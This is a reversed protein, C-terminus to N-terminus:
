IGRVGDVSVQFVEHHALMWWNQPSVYPRLIGINWVSVCVSVCVDTSHTDASSDNPTNCYTATHWQNTATHQLTAHQLSNCHTAPWSAVGLDIGSLGLLMQAESMRMRVCVHTCLYAIMYLSLFLSLSLSLSLCRCCSRWSEITLAARRYWTFSCLGACGCTRICVGTCIAHMCKCMCVCIFNHDSDDCKPQTHAFFLCQTRTHTRTHTHTNHAHPISLSLSLSLSLFAPHSLFLSMCACLCIYVCTCMCVRMCPCIRLWVIVRICAYIHICVHVYMCVYMCVYVRVHMCTYMRVCICVCVVTEEDANDHLARTATQLGHEYL